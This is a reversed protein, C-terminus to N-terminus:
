LLLSVTISFEPLALEDRTGPGGNTEQQATERSEHQHTDDHAPQLSELQGQRQQVM